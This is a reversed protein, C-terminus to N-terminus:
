INDFERIRMPKMSKLTSLYDVQKLFDTASDYTFYSDIHYFDAIFACAEALKSGNIKRFCHDACIEVMEEDKMNIVTKWRTFERHMLYTFVREMMDHKTPIPRVTVIHGLLLSREPYRKLQLEGVEGCTQPSLFTEKSTEVYYGRKDALLWKYDETYSFCVKRKVGASNDGVNDMLTRQM